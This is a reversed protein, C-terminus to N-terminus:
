VLIQEPVAEFALKQRELWELDCRLCRKCEEVITVEDMGLEVENFNGQREAIPLEPM